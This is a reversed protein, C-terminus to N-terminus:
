RKEAVKEFINNVLATDRVSQYANCMINIKSQLPEESVIKLCEERKEGFIVPETLINIKYVLYAADGYQFIKATGEGQAKVTDFFVAPFEHDNRDIVETEYTRESLPFEKVIQEYAKDIGYSSAVSSVAKTYVTNLRNIEEDTLASENGYVDINKLPTRVYKFAVFNEQLTGRLVADSIEDTGGKDFFATRLKEIYAEYTKIKVYTQKSVGIKEYYEGFMNWLVNANDSIEVRDADTLTLGSTVFTSNVAVYRICMYTAETIRGDRTGQAEPRDWVSDLFYAFIESDIPTGNVTIPYSETSSTCASLTLILLVLLISIIRKM